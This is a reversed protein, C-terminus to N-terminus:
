QKQKKIGLVLFRLIPIRRILEHLLFTGVFVALAALLYKPLPSLATHYELAYAVPLLVPYHLVYFGFSNQTLYRTVKNERDGFRGALAFLALIMLWLYLNTPLSQLVAPSTFAKGYIYFGYPVISALAALSLPLWLSTLKKQIHEHSFVLYGLLFATFYIGFRYMTLVPLNGVYSASWLLLAFLFVFYPSFRGCLTRLRDKKDIRRILVLLASFLFLMQAFWLPGIGSVASIPYLLFSPITDLGGGLKINFYGAIWQFAFLGLTSPVLLKVAREKLFARGGKRPLAYAACIGSVLFLLVMFWPYVLAATLDFAPISGANPIGGLVGVGNWLYFVHYVMVLLVTSWRLTDLFIKRQM